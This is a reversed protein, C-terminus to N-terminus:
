HGSDAVLRGQIMRGSELVAANAPFPQFPRVASAGEAGMVGM